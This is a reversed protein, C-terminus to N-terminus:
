GQIWGKIGSTTNTVGTNTGLWTTTGSATSWENWSYVHYGVAPYKNFLAVLSVGGNVATAPQVYGAGGVNSASCASTSDEGVCVATTTFDAGTINTARVNLSVDIPVEAFGVVVEVQNSPSANAQRVTATTYAWSATSELRLLPRTVRNYYNWVYRKTLSDETQGAVTTTRFSGIYRRTLAGTKELIGNQTTLATARTTDNTWALLELTPTGGNDYVFVDYMQSTTNPVAISTEAFTRNNWATSGDYLYCTNGKYPTWFLTTAATVNATTVPVATTLTLRGDCPSIDNTTSVATSRSLEYWTTSKQILSIWSTTASMTFDATLTMNGVATKLTVPNAGPNNGNLVLVFGPNTNTTIINNLNAAGGTTDVNHVNQTPTISNTAVTLTSPATYAIKGTVTNLNWPATAPVNDLTWVTVAASTQLVFKYTAPLLYIAGSTPRGASNLVVPNANANTCTTANVVGSDLCTALLNSTGAAYSYLLGGSLPLGSNDLFQPNIQPVTTGIQASPVVAGALLAVVVLVLRWPKM